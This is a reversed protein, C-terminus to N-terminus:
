DRFNCRMGQFQFNLASKCEAASSFKCLFGRGITCKHRKTLHCVMNLSFKDKETRIKRKEGLLPKGESPMAAWPVHFTLNMQNSIAHSFSGATKKDTVHHSHSWSQSCNAFLHSEDHEQTMKDCHATRWSQHSDKEKQQFHGTKCFEKVFAQLSACCLESWMEKMKNSHNVIRVTQWIQSICNINLSNSSPENAATKSSLRLHSSPCQACCHRETRFTQDDHPQLANGWGKLCFGM